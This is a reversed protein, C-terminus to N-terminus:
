KEHSEPCNIRNEFCSFIKIEYWNRENLTILTRLSHLSPFNYEALKILKIRTSMYKHHDWLFRRWLGQNICLSCLNRFVAYDLIHDFTITSDCFGAGESQFVMLMKNPTDKVKNFTKDVQFERKQHVALQAREM